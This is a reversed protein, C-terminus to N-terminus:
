AERPIDLAAFYGWYWSEHYMSVGINERRCRRRMAGILNVLGVNWGCLVGRYDRRRRSELQRRGYHRYGCRRRELLWIRWRSPKRRHNPLAILVGVVM